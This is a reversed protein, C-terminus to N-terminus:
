GSIWELYGEPVLGEKGDEKFGVAWGGDVTGVVRVTEGSTVTLEHESEAEFDYLVKYLGSTGQSSSSMAAHGSGEVDDDDDDDDYRTEPGWDDDGGGRGSGVGGGSSHLGDSSGATGQNFGRRGQQQSSADMVGDDGVDEDDDDDYYYDTDDEEHRPHSHSSGDDVMARFRFRPPNASGGGFSSSSSSSSSSASSSPQQSASHSPHQGYAALSVDRAGIRRPGDELFAFDLIKLPDPIYSPPRSVSKSSKDQGAQDWSSSSFTNSNRVPTFAGGSSSSRKSSASIASLRKLPTSESPQLATGKLAHGPSSSLISSSSPEQSADSQPLDDRASLMQNANTACEEFHDDNTAPMASPSTAPSDSFAHQGPVSTPRSVASTADTATASAAQPKNQQSSDGEVTQPRADNPVFSGSLSPYVEASSSSDDNGSSGDKSISQHSQSQPLTSPGPQSQLSQTSESHLTM